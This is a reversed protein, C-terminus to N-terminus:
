LGVPFLIRSLYIVATVTFIGAVTNFVVSRTLFEPHGNYEIGYIVLTISSPIAAYLFFVQSAIPSWNGMLTIFCWALLPSIILKLLAASLIPRNMVMQHTRRLQIGLTVTILVLFAGTFHELVPHLFTGELRFGSYRVLLALLLAYFVPMKLLAPFLHPKKDSGQRVLIAGWTNVAVNMLIMLIAMTGLATSLYPTEGNVLFPEHSFIMMVLAAGLHGSNSFTSVAQFHSKEEPSLGLFRAVFGSLAFLLIMLLVAAPVLGWDHPQPQYQYISFFIFCPLVVYITLKTYTSLEIKFKSDLFWGCGIFAFLPLIDNWLIQLIIM